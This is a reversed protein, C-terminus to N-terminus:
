GFEAVLSELAADPRGDSVVRVDLGVGAVKTLARRMAQHIWEPENGFAGGGLRTLFVLNSGSHHANIV